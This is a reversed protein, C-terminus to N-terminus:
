IKPLFVKNMKINKKRNVVIIKILYFKHLTECNGFIPVFTEYTLKKKKCILLFKLYFIILNNFSMTMWKSRM